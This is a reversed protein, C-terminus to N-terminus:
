NPQTRIPIVREVWHFSAPPVVTVCIEISANEKAAGARKSWAGSEPAVDFVIM